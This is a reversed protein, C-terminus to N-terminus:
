DDSDDDNYGPLADTSVINNSSSNASNNLKSRDVPTKKKTNDNIGFVKKLKVILLWDEKSVDDKFFEKLADISDRSIKSYLSHTHDFQRGYMLNPNSECSIKISVSTGKKAQNVEKHNNEISVVRGVDLGLQPIYLPTHIKLTGDTVEVGVVIPDKKNFIHQPFIKLVCPHVAKMLADAKRQEIIGNMYASFQDFLHYIIDATFIKVSCEKAYEEAESDIKVDFALITAYEPFGKENMLNTRIIDKKFITGINVTSVPIPPKCEKQLFQLLAELAGLTSAHVTVGKSSTALKTVSNLDSQIEEKLEEEDDDSHIVM